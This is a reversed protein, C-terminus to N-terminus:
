TAHPHIFLLPSSLLPSSLFPSPGPSPHPFSDAEGKGRIINSLSTHVIAYGNLVMIGMGVLNISREIQILLRGDHFMNSVIPARDDLFITM